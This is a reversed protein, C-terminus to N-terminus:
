GDGEDRRHRPSERRLREIEERLETLQAATPLAELERVMESVLAVLHRNFVVQKAAIKNVYFLVLNHFQGRVAMWLFSLPLALALILYNASRIAQAMERFDVFYLIGTILLISVLAGPLWRKADKM